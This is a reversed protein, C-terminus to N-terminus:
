DQVENLNEFSDFIDPLAKLVYFLAYVLVGHHAGLGNAQENLIEAAVEHVSTALLIIGVILKCYPSNVITKLM